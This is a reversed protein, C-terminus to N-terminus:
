HLLEPIHILSVKRCTGLGSADYGIVVSNNEGALQIRIPFVDDASAGAAILGIPVALKTLTPKM